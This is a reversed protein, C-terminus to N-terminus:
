HVAKVLVSRLEEDVPPKMLYDDCGALSGRAKDVKTTQGTLMAIHANCQQKIKRCITYGDMGPMVVDLFALDYKKEGIMALAKEGSEAFDIELNAVNRAIEELKFRMFQRAPFSDDVVLVNLTRQASGTVSAHDEASTILNLLEVFKRYMLPKRIAKQDGDAISESSSVMIGICAPQEKQLAQWRAMAPADDANVFMLDVPDDDTPEGFVFSDGLEPAIQFMSKIVLVERTELGIHFIRSRKKTTQSSNISM